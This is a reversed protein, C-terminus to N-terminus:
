LTLYFNWLLCVQHFIFIRKVRLMKKKVVKKEKMRERKGRQEIYTGIEFTPKGKKKLKKQTRERVKYGWAFKGFLISNGCPFLVLICCCCFFTFDSFYITYLRRFTNRALLLIHLFLWNKKRWFVCVNEDQLQKRYDM